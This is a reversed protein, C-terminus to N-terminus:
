RDQTRAHGTEGNQQRNGHRGEQEGNLGANGAELAQADDAGIYRNEGPRVQDKPIPPPKATM